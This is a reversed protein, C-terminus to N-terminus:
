ESNTTEDTQEISNSFVLEDPLNEFSEYNENERMEKYKQIVPIILTVLLVIVAAVAIVFAKQEKKWRHVPMAEESQQLPRKEKKSSAEVVYQKLSDEAVLKTCIYKYERDLVGTLPSLDSLVQSIYRVSEGTLESISKEDLDNEYHMHIISRVIQPKTLVTQVLAERKAGFDIGTLTIAEDNSDSERILPYAIKLVDFLQADDSLEATSFATQAFVAKASDFDKTTMLAIAYVDDGFNDIFRRIDM